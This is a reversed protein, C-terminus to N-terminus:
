LTLSREIFRGCVAYREAKDYDHLEYVYLKLASDHRGLRGLLIARVEFLDPTGHM